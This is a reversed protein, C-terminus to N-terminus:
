DNLAQGLYLILDEPTVVQESGYSDAALDAALGHLYVAGLVAEEISDMQAALGAIMGTLVDGSGGKALGVHGTTNIFARGDPFAIVTALGKLVVLAGARGALERAAALRDQRLLEEKDPLLRLYEGPHPTLVAPSWGKEYRERLLPFADDMDALANLGDADIILPVPQRLLHRIAKEVWPARGAGTGVAFADPEPLDRKTVPGEEPVASLLASPMASAILPLSKEPARLMTYGVGMKEGARAALILAGTMGEAGGILLIRGFQGKHGDPARDGLCDPATEAELAQVIAQSGLSAEVFADTMSLPFEILEGAYLLGPHTVLGIKRRGFTVTFDAAVTEEIAQGTDAQVGSPIDCAVVCVGKKKWVALSALAAKMPGALPRSSDFGTGYLADVVILPIRGSLQDATEIRLGGLDLYARKNTGADAGPEFDPLADYVIVGYGSAQLQRAAAWGDGGNKGPGVFFLVDFEGEEKKMFSELLCALTTALGAAAQEMLVASPLGTMEMFAQDLREQEKRTLLRSM